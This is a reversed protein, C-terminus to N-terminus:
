LFLDVFESQQWEDYSKHEHFGCPSACCACSPRSVPRLVLGRMVLHLFEKPLDEYAQDQKGSDSEDPSWHNSHWAVIFKYLPSSSPLANIPLAIEHYPLDPDSGSLRTMVDRRLALIDREDAFIYLQFLEVTGADAGPGILKGSYLWKVFWEACPKNLGLDFHDNKAEQFGGFIAAEYYKSYHCLLTKYVLVEWGCTTRLEIM